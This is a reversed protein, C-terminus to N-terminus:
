RNSESRKKASERLEMLSGKRSLHHLLRLIFPVFNHKRRDNEERQSLLRSNEEFIRLDIDAICEKCQQEESSAPELSELRLRAADAEARLSALTSRGISMLAFHTESASYRAMRAEIVPKVVTLWDCGTDISGVLIPGAKLGDLEYVNGGYPVYAIFHHADGKGSKLKSEEIFFSDNRAFSNHTLRITDSNGIALGRSESDFEM